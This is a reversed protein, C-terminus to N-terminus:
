IVNALQEKIQELADKMQVVLQQINSNQAKAGLTNIERGIEQSIFALKKGVVVDPANMVTVFYKLHQSLRVKEENIDLKELYFIVEQEFRNQDVNENGLFDHLNKQLRTKLKVIREKEFPEVEKLKEAIFQINAGLDRQLALGESRRFANLEEIANKITDTVCAWEEEDVDKEQTSVVNPIRVITPFLDSHDKDGVSKKLEVLENYYKKFLPANLGYEDDATDSSISLNLELKGRYAGESIINRMEIEKSRYNNPSKIRIDSTKGNLSKIDVLISKGNIDISSKGFGTMSLIM